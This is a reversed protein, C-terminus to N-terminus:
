VTVYHGQRSEAFNWRIECFAIHSHKWICELFYLVADDQEHGKRAMISHKPLDDWAQKDNAPMARIELEVTNLPEIETDDYLFRHGTDGTYFASGKCNVGGYHPLTQPEIKAYESNHWTFRDGIALQGFTPPEPKANSLELDWYYTVDSHTWTAIAEDTVLADLEKQLDAKVFAVSFHNECLDCLAKDLEQATMPMSESLINLIQERLTTM